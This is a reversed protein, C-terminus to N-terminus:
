PRSYNYENENSDGPRTLIGVMKEMLGAMRKTNAATQQAHNVGGNGLVLGMKEWSSAALRQMGAMPNPATASDEGPRKFLQSATKALLEAKQKTETFVDTEDIKGGTMRAISNSVQRIFYQIGDVMAQTILDFAQTILSATGIMVNVLHFLVKITYAITELSASKSFADLTNRMMEFFQNLAPALNKAFVAAIAHFSASMAKMNWGVMTLPRNTEQFVAISYKMKENLIEVQKGFQMVENQGVGLASALMSTKIGYGLPMGKSLSSGYAMRAAEAASALMRLPAILLNLAFRVMGVVVRFGALVAGIQAMIALPTRMAAAVPNPPANRGTAGPNLNPPPTALGGGANTSWSSPGTSRSPGGGFGVGSVTPQPLGARWAALAADRQEKLAATVGKTRAKLKDMKENARDLGADSSTTGSKLAERIIDAAQKADRRLKDLLLKLEVSVQGSNNM